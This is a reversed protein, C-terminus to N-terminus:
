MWPDCWTMSIGQASLLVPLHLPPGPSSSDPTVDPWPFRRLPSSSQSIFLQAPLFVPLHLTENLPAGRKTNFPAALFLCLFLVLVFCLSHLKNQLGTGDVWSRKKCCPLPSHMSIGLKHFPFFDQWSGLSIFFNLFFTVKEKKRRRCGGWQWLWECCLAQYVKCGETEISSSRKKGPIANATKREREACLYCRCSRGVFWVFHSVPM